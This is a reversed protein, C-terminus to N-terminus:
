ARSCDQKALCSSTILLALTQCLGLENISYHELFISYTARDIKSHYNLLWCALFSFIAWKSGLLSNSPTNIECMVIWKDTNRNCWCSPWSHSIITLLIVIDFNMLTPATRMVIRVYLPYYELTSCFLLQIPMKIQSICSSQSTWSISSTSSNTKELDNSFLIAQRAVLIISMSSGICAYEQSDISLRHYSYLHFPVVWLFMYSESNHICLNIHRVLEVYKKRTVWASLYPQYLWLMSHLVWWSFEPQSRKTWFFEQWSHNMIIPLLM